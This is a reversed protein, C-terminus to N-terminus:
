SGYRVFRSSSSETAGPGGEELFVWHESNMM